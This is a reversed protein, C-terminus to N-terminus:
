VVWVVVGVRVFRGADVDDAVVLCDHVFVEADCVVALQEYAADVVDDAREEVQDEYGEEDVADAAAAGEEEAGDCDADREDAFGGDARLDGPGGAGAAVAQGSGADEEQEEHAADEADRKAWDRPDVRRFDHGQTDPAAPGRERRAHAVPEDARHPRLHTGEPKPFDRIFEVEDEDREVQEDRQRSDVEEELYAGGKKRQSSLVLGGWLFGFEEGELFDVKEEAVTRQARQGIVEIILLLFNLHLADLIRAFHQRPARLRRPHM